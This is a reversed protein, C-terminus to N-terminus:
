FYKKGRFLLDIYSLVINLNVYNESLVNTNSAGRRGGELALLLSIPSTRSSIGYGISGGIDTIQVNKVKLYSRGAYFGLQFYGKEYERHYYDKEKRSSQFGVSLKNSNVLKYNTGQYKLVGWQQTQANITYTYKADRIFAIGVNINRPLTFYDNSTIESKLAIGDDSTVETAYEAYLDTKPSYTLGYRSQWKSNIRFGTQLAFNFYYNRLYTNQVTTLAVTSNDGSLLSETQRLSGFLFSSNIGISTHKSLQYGNAWYFQNVGGDGEYVAAINDLTGAINKLATYSYNATSFPQLGVSSGWRRAVKMALNIRRVAFDGSKNDPATVGAGKFVSQRFRTAIEFTYFHENLGTLSAANSNNINRSDSLALGANAMGTYRNFNSNEMDGIGLVSYPSSNNQALAFQPLVIFFGAAAIISKKLGM